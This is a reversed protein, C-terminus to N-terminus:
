MGQTYLRYAGPYHESARPCLVILRRACNIKPSKSILNKGTARATPGADIIGTLAISLKWGIRRRGEWVILEFLQVSIKKGWIQESYAGLAPPLAIVSIYDLKM